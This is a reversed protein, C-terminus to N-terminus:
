SAALPTLAAGDAGGGDLPGADSTVLPPLSGTCFFRGGGGVCLIVDIGIVASAGSFFCMQAAHLLDSLEARLRALCM